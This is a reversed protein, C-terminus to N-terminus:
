WSIRQAIGCILLYGRSWRKVRPSRVMLWRYSSSSNSTCADYVRSLAAEIAVERELLHTNLDQSVALVRDLVTLKNKM